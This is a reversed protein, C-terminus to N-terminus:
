FEYRAKRVHTHCDICSTSMQYYRMATADLNRTQAAQKLRSVTTKFERTLERYKEHDIEVWNAADTVGDLEDIGSDVLEFDARTLGELINQTYMLKARMFDRRAVVNEQDDAPIVIGDQEQTPVPDQTPNSLMWSSVLGGVLFVSFAIVRLM